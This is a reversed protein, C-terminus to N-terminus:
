YSVNLLSSPYLKQKLFSNYMRTQTTKNEYMFEVHPKLQAKEIGELADMWRIGPQQHIILDLMYDETASATHYLSVLAYTLMFLNKPKLGSYMQQFHAYSSCADFFAIQTKKLNFEIGQTIELQSKGINNLMNNINLAVGDGSHGGYYIFDGNEWAEKWFTPFTVLAGDNDSPFLGSRVVWINGDDDKRVYTRFYRRQVHHDMNVDRIVSIQSFQDGLFKRFEDLSQVSTFGYKQLLQNDLNKYLKYGGDKYLSPHPKDATGAPLTGEFGHIFYLNILRGNSNEGRIKQLPVELNQPSPLKTVEFNVTNAVPPKGLSECYIPDYFYSFDKPEWYHYDTCERWEKRRYHAMDDAYIEPLDVLLPLPVIVKESNKFWVDAAKHHLIAKGNADYHVWLYPDGEVVFTKINSVVPTMTGMFGESLDPPFGLHEMFYASHFLGYVHSAHHNAIKESNSFMPLQASDQYRFMSRFSISYKYEVEVGSYSLSQAQAFHPLILFLIFAFFNKQSFSLFNSFATFAKM